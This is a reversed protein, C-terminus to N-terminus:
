LWNNIIKKIEDLSEYKFFEDKGDIDFGSNYRLSKISLLERECIQANVGDDFKYIEIESVEINLKKASSKLTRIREFPYNTIGCKLWNNIENFYHHIYVYGVLSPDYGYKACAPCGRGNVRSSSDAKWEHECDSCKWDLKKHTGAIIKSADGQYEIALEPHTKEMSNRGDIHVVQNACAPCGSGNVRGGGSVKWEHDCDSCKWDLKKDTRCTLGFAQIQKGYFKLHKNQSLDLEAFLEPYDNWSPHVNADSEGRAV